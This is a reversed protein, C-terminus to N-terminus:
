PQNVNPVWNRIDLEEGLLNKSNRTEVHGDLFLFNGAGSHRKSIAGLNTSYDATVAPYLTVRAPIQPPFKVQDEADGLAPIEGVLILLSRDRVSMNRYSLTWSPNSSLYDHNYGYSQDVNSELSKYNQTSKYPRAKAPCHFLKSMPAEYDGDWETCYPAIFGYWSLGAGNKDAGWHPPFRGENEQCYGAFGMGIQRLNGLCNASAASARVKSVGALMLAGLVAIIAIVVLLEILTFAAGTEPGLRRAARNCGTRLPHM